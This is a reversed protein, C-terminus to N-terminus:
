FFAFSPEECVAGQASRVAHAKMYDEDGYLLYGGSLGSKILKRFAEENIIEVRAVEKAIYM